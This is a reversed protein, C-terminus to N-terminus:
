KGQFTRAKAEEAEKGGGMGNIEAIKALLRAMSQGSRTAWITDVQAETLAPKVVSMRLTIKNITTADKGLARAQDLEAVTLPRLIVSGGWEPVELEVEGLDPAQAIDDFSLIKSM